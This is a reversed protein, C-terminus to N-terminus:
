AKLDKEAGIWAADSTYEEPGIILYPVMGTKPIAVCKRTGRAMIFAHAHVALVKDKADSPGSEQKSPVIFAVVTGKADVRKTVRM